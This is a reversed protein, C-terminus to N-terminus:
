PDIWAARLDIDAGQGALGHVRRSVLAATDHRYLFIVPLEAALAAALDGLLPARAAPGEAARIQDILAQVRDSRFASRNFEGHLGYLPGPDEDPRGDWLMPTLDFDGAKIRDPIGAAEVTAIELLLGARRLDAAFRKAEATLSRAGTALVLKLKFPTGDRDRVGDGNTDRYGAEELTRVAEALDFRPKPVSGFPPGRNTGRPGQPDGGGGAAPEM